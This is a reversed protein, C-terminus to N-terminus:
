SRSLRDGVAALGLAGFPTVMWALAFALLWRLPSEIGSFVFELWVTTALLVFAGIFLISRSRATRQHAWTAFAILTGSLTLLSLAARWPEPPGSLLASSLTLGLIVLPLQLDRSRM